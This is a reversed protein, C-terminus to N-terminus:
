WRRGAEGVEAVRDDHASMSASWTSRSCGPSHGIRSCPRSSSTRSPSSPRAGATRARCCGGGGVGLEDEEAHRRRLAVVARGVEGVDLRRGGLDARQQAGLGDDDVLRRHRDARGTDDLLHEAAGVHVDHRVGLEEALARGDVVEEVGVADDDAGVVLRGGDPDRREVEADGGREDDGVRRRGLRDLVGGVGEEGGLDAEDVGDGGHALRDAGVHVVDDEAHAVVLADAELEEARARAPTPAAERLVRPREHADGLVGAVVEVQELADDGDVVLLEVPHRVLDDVEDAARDVADGIATHPRVNLARVSSRRSEGASAIM